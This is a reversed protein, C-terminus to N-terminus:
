IYHEIMKYLNEIEFPKPLFNDAHCDSAIKAIDFEASMIIVPIQEIVEDNKIDKCIVDGNRDSGTLRLDLLILEPKIDAIERIPLSTLSCYVEYGKDKLVMELIANIDPDDDIVLIKSAM